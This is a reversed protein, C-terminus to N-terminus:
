KQKVKVRFVFEFEMMPTVSRSRVWLLVKVKPFGIFFGYPYLSIYYLVGFLLHTGITNM